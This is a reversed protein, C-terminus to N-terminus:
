LGDLFDATPKEFPRVMRVRHVHSFIAMRGEVREPRVALYKFKQNVGDREHQPERLMFPNKRVVQAEATLYYNNSETATRRM